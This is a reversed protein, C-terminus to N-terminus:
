SLEVHLEKRWNIFGVIAMITYILFLVATAWLEKYLYLGISFADIFIWLLWHELVKRALMWTAVISLATTIADGHPVPSDTHNKLVYVIIAYLAASILVLVIGTKMQLRSVPLVHNEERSGGKMWHYWGYISIGVYYLQLGMDAYFKAAFFVYVYLISTLLGVPWTLINQRISLFIYAIGLVAGLIEVWNSQAWEIILEAM